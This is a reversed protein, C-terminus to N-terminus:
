KDEPNFRELLHQYYNYIIFHCRKKASQNIFSRFITFAIIIIRELQSLHLRNFYYNSYIPHLLSQPICTCNPFLTM